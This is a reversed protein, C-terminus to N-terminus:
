PGSKKTKKVKPEKPTKPEKQKKVPKMEQGSTDEPQSPTVTIEKTTPNVTITINATQQPPQGIVVNTDKDSQKDGASSDDNDSLDEDFNFPRKEGSACDECYKGLEIYRKRQEKGLTKCRRIILNTM